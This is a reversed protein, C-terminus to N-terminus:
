VKTNDFRSIRNWWNQVTIFVVLNENYHRELIPGVFGFHRIAAM